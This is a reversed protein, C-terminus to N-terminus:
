SATKEQRVEHYAIYFTSMIILAAGMFTNMAPWEGFFMFGFWTAFVLEVYRYPMLASAETAAFAKFLCFQIANAGFGLAALWALETMTPAQWVYLTPIFSLATTGIGFYFLLTSTKETVIMKKTMIDLVAFLFTAGLPLLAVSQFTDSGPQVMVLIGFFGFLTAIWRSIGIHESLFIMALILFFIPQSFMISTNSALPLKNVAFCWTGLAAVGFVARFVHWLPISTRLSSMGQRMLAPMVFLTSFLFRFFVIEISNLRDGLFRMLVDNSVSVFCIMVAWFAGQLYGRQLFWNKEALAAGVQAM